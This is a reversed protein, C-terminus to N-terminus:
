SGHGQIDPTHEQDTSYIQVLMYVTCTSSFPFCSVSFCKRVRFVARCILHFTLSAMYTYRYNQIYIMSLTTMIEIMPLVSVVVSTSFDIRAMYRKRSFTLVSFSAPQSKEFCRTTGSFSVLVPSCM